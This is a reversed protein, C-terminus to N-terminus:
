PRNRGGGRRMRRNIENLDRAMNDQRQRDLSAQDPHRVGYNGAIQRLRQAVEPKINLNGSQANQLAAYATAQINNLEAGTLAGSNVGNVFNDLVSEDANALAEATYKDTGAFRYVNGALKGQLASLQTNDSLNATALDQIMAHAGRNVTKYKDGYNSMLHNAAESLGQKSATNSALISGLNSEVATRGKDTKSLVNQAAKVEAMARTRETDDRASAYRALAQAHYTAVSNVDNVNVVGGNNDLSAKGNTMLAEYDAVMQADSKAQVGAMASRFGTSMMNEERNHADLNKLYQARARAVNREGGRMFRGIGSLNRANGNRDLGARYRIRNEASREQINKMADTGRVGGRLAGSTRRGLSRGMTSLRTGVNGLLSLSRRLLMPILFFPLVQVLMAPVAMGDVSSLVAGALQGAGLLAGCLPYVVLLAKFIDLWKKFLKETNPLMYCVVAVPAIVVILIIGAQRIILTLYMFLMAAILSIIFGLVAFGLSIAALLWGGSFLVFLGGVGGGLLATLGWGGIQEPISAGAGAVNSAASSLFSNLGSGFINSLDVAVECLVYSLNILVAAVILKPLAKKIGYNDIGVGTVQSFIIFLFLLVFIINAITCMTGWVERVGSDEKFIEPRVQLDKEITNWMHEAIPTLMTVVPCVIWGLAGSGSYCVSKKGGGWKEGESEHDEIGGTDGEEFVVTVSSVVDQVYSKCRSGFDNVSRNVLYKFDAVSIDNQDFDVIPKPPNYSEADSASLHRVTIDSLHSWLGNNYITFEGKESKDPARPNKVDVKGDTVNYCMRNTNKAEGNYTYEYHVCIGDAAFVHNGLLFSVIIQVFVFVACLWIKKVFVGRFMGNQTNQGQKM